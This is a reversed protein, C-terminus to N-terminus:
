HRHQGRAKDLSEQWASALASWWGPQSHLWWQQYSQHMSQLAAPITQTKFLSYGQKFVTSLSPKALEQLMTYERQKAAWLENNINRELLKMRQKLKELDKAAVEDDLAETRAKLRQELVSVRQQLQELDIPKRRARPTPVSKLPFGKSKSQRVPRVSKPSRRTTPASAPSPAAATAPKKFPKKTTKPLSKPNALIPNAGGEDQNFELLRM